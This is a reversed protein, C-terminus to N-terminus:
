NTKIKNVASVLIDQDEKSLPTTMMHNVIVMCIADCEKDTLRHSPKKEPKIPAKKVTPM